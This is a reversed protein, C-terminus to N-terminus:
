LDNVANFSLLKISPSEKESHALQRGTSTLSIVDLGEDRRHRQRSNM